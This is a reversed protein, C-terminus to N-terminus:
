GLNVISGMLWWGFLGLLVHIIKFAELIDHDFVLLTVIEALMGTGSSTENLMLIRSPFVFFEESSTSWGYPVDVIKAVSSLWALRVDDLWLAALEIILECTFIRLTEIILDETLVNVL